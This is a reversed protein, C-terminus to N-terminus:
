ASWCRTATAGDDRHRIPGNVFRAVDSSRLVAVPAGEIAMTQTLM